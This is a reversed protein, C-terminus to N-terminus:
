IQAATLPQPNVVHFIGSMENNAAWDICKELDNMMTMSNPVNIIQEYGRLKNILNRPHNKDSIPMRIRLICVNDMDGLALDCAYKTKSYYSKPNAFDTEKWGTDVDYPMSSEDLECMTIKNPSQGYFICGSAIQVLRISKKQCVDALLIPLATNINATEEKNKECWDINPRGTRGICNVIVDPKNDYIVREIQRVDLEFREDITPYPLHESVFGKGATITKM